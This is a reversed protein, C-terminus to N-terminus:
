GEKRPHNRECTWPGNPFRKWHRCHRPDPCEGGVLRGGKSTVDHDHGAL